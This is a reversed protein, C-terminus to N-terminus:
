KEQSASVPSPSPVGSRPAPILATAKFSLGSSFRGERENQWPSVRPEVLEVRMGEHIGDGPDSLLTVKIEEGKPARAQGPLAVPKAFLSVEFLTAGEWDTVVTVRGREDQKTKETPPDVVTLKYGSMIVPLNRM